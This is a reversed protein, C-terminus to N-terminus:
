LTNNPAGVRAAKHLPIVYPNDELSSVVVPENRVASVDLKLAARPRQVGLVERGPTEAAVRDYIPERDNVSDSLIRKYQMNVYDEGNFLKVGSNTPARGKAVNERQAYHRMNAASTRNTEYQAYGSGIVGTYSSKASIAAKQTNRV